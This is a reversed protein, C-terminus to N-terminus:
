SEDRYSVVKKLDRGCHPCVDWDEIKNQCYPCYLKVPSQDTIEKPIPRRLLHEALLSGSGASLALVLLFIMVFSFLLSLIDRPYYYRLPNKGELIDPLFLGVVFLPFFTIAAALSSTVLDHTSNIVDRGFGVILVGPAACLILLIWLFYETTLDLGSILALVQVYSYTIGCVAGARLGIRTKRDVHKRVIRFYMFVSVLVLIVFSFWFKENFNEFSFGTLFIVGSNSYHKMM